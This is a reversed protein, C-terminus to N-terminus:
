TLGISNDFGLSSFEIMKEKLNLAVYTFIIRNNPQPISTQLAETKVHALSAEKVTAATFTMFDSVGHM